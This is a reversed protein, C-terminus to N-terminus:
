PEAYFGLTNRSGINDIKTLVLVPDHPSFFRLSVLLLPRVQLPDPPPPKLFVTKTDLRPPTSRTSPEATSLKLAVGTKRWM